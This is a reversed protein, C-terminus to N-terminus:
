LDHTTAGTASRIDDAFAADLPASALIRAVKNRPVFSRRADGIPALDAVARGCVTVQLREGAEVQRLVQATRRRLQRLSITRMLVTYHMAEARTIANVAAMQVRARRRTGAVVRLCTPNLGTRIRPGVQM